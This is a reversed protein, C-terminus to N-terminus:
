AVREAYVVVNDRYSRAAPDYAGGCTILRLQATDVDGYVEATPFRDKPYREVRRVTFSVSSGDARRVQVPDGPAVRSLDAFVGPRGQWDVHAALVSPGLEVPTPSHVYWGATSGDPPVEMAGDPELGLDIVEADLHLSPIVLQQPRSAALPGADPVAPNAPTSVAAPTASGAVTSSCGSLVALACSVTILGYRSLLTRLYM